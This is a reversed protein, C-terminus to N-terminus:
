PNVRPHVMFFRVQQVSDLDPVRKDLFTIQRYQGRLANELFKRLRRDYAAIGVRNPRSIVRWKWFLFRKEKWTRLTLNTVKRNAPSIYRGKEALKLRLQADKMIGAPVEGEQALELGLKWYSVYFANLRRYHEKKTVVEGARFTDDDYVSLEGDATFYSRVRLKIADM